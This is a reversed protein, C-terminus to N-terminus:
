EGPATPEQTPFDPGQARTTAPLAIPLARLRAKRATVSAVAGAELAATSHEVAALILNVLPEATLREERIRIVTPASAGSIALLRHFDADLTLIWRREAAAFALLAADSATAMGLEAVHVVDWGANRLLASSSRPLGQDLLARIL